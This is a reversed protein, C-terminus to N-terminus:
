AQVKISWTANAFRPVMLPASQTMLYTVSPDEVDWMKPFYRLPALGAKRDRIAGFAQVGRVMSSVGIVRTPDLMPQQVGADDTYKASYIWCDYGAGNSGQVRGAYELGDYGNTILSIETRSGRYENSILTIKNAVLWASFSDWASTGFVLKHDTAGCLDNSAKNAARIDALPNPASDNWRATTTLVRTLTADRNFDVTVMPYDVGDIIVAGDQIVKAAMWELRNDIKVRQGALLRAVTADFRQEPSLTGTTLSEGPTRTFMNNNPDVIDKPKVYAPRYSVTRFGDQKAVRGQVNPAVFPALRKYDESIEDMAITETSFAVEDPFFQLWFSPLSKTVSLVGLLEVLDFPGM